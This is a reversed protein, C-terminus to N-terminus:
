KANQKKWDVLFQPEKYNKIKSKVADIQDTPLPSYVRYNHTTRSIVFVVGTSPDQVYGFYGSSAEDSVQADEARQRCGAFSFLVLLLLIYHMTKM